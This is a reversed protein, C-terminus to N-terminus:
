NKFENGCLCWEQFRGPHWTVSMLEEKYIDCKSKIESYVEAKAPPVLQVLREFFTNKINDQDIINTLELASDDLFWEKMAPHEKNAIFWNEILGIFVLRQDSAPIDYFMTQNDILLNFFEEVPNHRIVPHVRNFYVPEIVKQIGYISINSYGDHLMKM